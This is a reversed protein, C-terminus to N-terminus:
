MSTLRRFCQKAREMERSLFRRQDSEFDPCPPRLLLLLLRGLRRLRVARGPSVGGRGRDDFRFETVLVAFNVGIRHVPPLLVLPFERRPPLFFPQGLVRTLAALAVIVALLLPPPELRVDLVTLQRFTDRVLLHTEEQDM